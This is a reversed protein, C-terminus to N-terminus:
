VIDFLELNYYNSESHLLRPVIKIKLDGETMQNKVVIYDDDQM